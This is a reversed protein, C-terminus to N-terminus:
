FRDAVSDLKSVFYDREKLLRGRFRIYLFLPSEQMRHHDAATEAADLHCALNAIQHPLNMRRMGLKFQDRALQGQNLVPM